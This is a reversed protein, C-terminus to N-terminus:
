ATKLHFRTALGGLESRGLILQAGMRELLNHVIALGLGAGDAARTYAGDGRVFPQMLRERESAKIGPGDDEITVLIFQDSRQASVRVLGKEPAYKVANDLLNILVQRLIRDESLVQVQLDGGVELRTGKNSASISLTQLAQDVADKLSVPGLKVEQELSQDNGLLLLDDVIGSLHTGSDHIHDVYDKYRDPEIWGFVGRRMVDTFGLIANLPTRMEHSTNAFMQTRQELTRKSQDSAAEAARRAEQLAAQERRLARNQAMILRVIAIGAVVTLGLTVLLLWRLTRLTSVRSLLAGNITRDVAGTFLRADTEFRSIMLDLEAITPRDQDATSLLAEDLARFSTLVVQTRARAEADAATVDAIAGDVVTQFRSALIEQALMLDSDAQLRDYILDGGDDEQRQRSLRQWILKFRDLEAEMRPISFSPTEVMDQAMSEVTRLTTLLLAVALVSGLGALALGIILSTSTSLRRM